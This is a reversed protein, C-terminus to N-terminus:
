GRAVAEATIMRAEAGMGVKNLAAVIHFLYRPTMKDWSSGQMGLGALLAVLEPNNVAAAQDILRTWHTPTKLDFGLKASFEQSASPAVRGLGSLGALLFGSKRSKTSNDSGFFSSLAAPDVQATEPAAAALLAWGLSGRDVVKSWRAANGDLGAALMAAILDPADSAMDSSVPLRAAAYATLVQRSYRQPTGPANGWLQKIAALRAAADNGVYADHLQTARTAWEGNIETNGYIQSYLDVMAESSLVGGAGAWDAAAARSPLGLMPATAALYSYHSGATQMVGTPPTLGTGVAFAYRWPTLVSVRDWEITVNRRGKGAAGAYKQALLMDIHPLAGAKTLRDLQGMPGGGGGSFANCVAQLVKWQEDKRAGGQIAVIPCIGTIDATALYADIAAQTLDPTYNAGDVDQVLARAAHGEGMRALLSARLGAFDAALMGTPADLRSALARRLMIHGWRSVMAGQNGALAARVLDANQHALALPPLGGEDSALIGIRTLARRAAPPIDYKPRLGLLQDLEQPSLASLDQYSAIPKTEAGVGSASSRRSSRHSNVADGNSGGEIVPLAGIHPADGSNAASDAPPPAAAPRNPRATPKDFGPPLLSQPSEQALAWASSLVLAASLLLKARKIRIIVRSCKGLSAFGVLGNIRM